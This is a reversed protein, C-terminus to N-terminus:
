WAYDRGLWIGDGLCAGRSIIYAGNVDVCACMDCRCVVAGYYKGCITV